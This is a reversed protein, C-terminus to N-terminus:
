DSVDEIYVNVVEAPMGVMQDLAERVRAQITQALRKLNTDPEAVIYVDAAIANNRVQLSVGPASGMNQRQLVRAPPRSVNSMGAVGRITSATLSVIMALVSPAIRVTGLKTEQM